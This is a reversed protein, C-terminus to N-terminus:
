GLKSPMPDSRPPWWGSWKSLTRHPEPNTTTTTPQNAHQNTPTVSIVSFPRVLFNFM